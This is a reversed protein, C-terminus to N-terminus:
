QALLPVMRRSPSYILSTTAAATADSLLVLAAAANTTGLNVAWNQTAATLTSQIKYSGFCSMNSSSSGGTTGVDAVATWGSGGATDTDQTYTAVPKQQAATAFVMYPTTPTGSTGTTPSAVVQNGVLSKTGAETATPSSFSATNFSNKNSTGGTITITHSTTLETTLKCIFMCYSVATGSLYEHIKTWTHGGGSNDSCAFAVGSASLIGGWVIVLEDVACTRSVTIANSASNVKNANSGCTGNYVIAM